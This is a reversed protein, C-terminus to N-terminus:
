DPRTEKFRKLRYYAERERETIYQGISKIQERLSPQIKEELVRIRRTIRRIEEGLRKLKSEFAALELLSEVVTEFLHISEELHGTTSLFDYGREDPARLPSEHATVDRYRLGMVSKAAIEVGFERGTTIVLSEVYDRGEHGVSFHLEKVADAYINKVEDRSRLFPVTTSLFERILAQRRAKLIGISNVVSRSKEKLMLLNTRTPHIV